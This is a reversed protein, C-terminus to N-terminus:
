LGTFTWFAGLCLRQHQARGPDDNGRGVRARALGRNRGPEHCGEGAADRDAGGLDPGVEDVRAVVRQRRPPRGPVEICPDTALIRHRGDRAPCGGVGIKEDDFADHPEEVSGGIVSGRRARGMHCSQKLGRHDEDHVGGGHAPRHGGEHVPERAVVLLGGNRADDEVPDPAVPVLHHKPFCERRQVDRDDAGEPAVRRELPAVAM